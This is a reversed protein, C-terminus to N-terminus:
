LSTGSGTPAAGVINRRGLIAAPLSAAQIPTPTWFNQDLLSKCLCNQLIVGGTAAMWSSQLSQIQSEQSANGNDSNNNGEQDDEADGDKAKKAKKQKKKKQKKKKRATLSDVQRTAEGGGDADQEGSSEKEDKKGKNKTKNTEGGGEDSSLKSESQSSDEVVSSGKKKADVKTKAKADGDKTAGGKMIIRKHGDEEVVTYQSGDLVELGFFMGIGENPGGELERGASRYAKSSPTDYHNEGHEFDEDDKQKGVGAAAKSPALLGVEVKKWPNGDNDSHTNSSAEDTAVATTPRARKRSKSKNAM